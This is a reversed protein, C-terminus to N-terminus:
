TSQDAGHHADLVGVDSSPDTPRAYVEFRSRISVFQILQQSLFSVNRHPEVFFGHIEVVVSVAVLHQPLEEMIHGQGQFRPERFGSGHLSLPRGVLLGVSPERLSHHFLVVVPIEDPAVIVVHHEERLHELLEARVHLQPEENM